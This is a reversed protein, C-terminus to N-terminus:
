KGALHYKKTNGLSKQIRILATAMGALYFFYWRYAVPLFFGAVIFGWLAAQLYGAVTALRASQADLHPMSRLRSLEKMLVVILAVYVFLAPLGLESAIQLPASHVGGRSMHGRVEQLALTNMGLGAGLLPNELVALMSDRMDNYRVTATGVPDKETAVITSMREFYTGPMFAILLPVTLMGIVAILAINRKPTQWLLVVGVVVLALFGGRSFSVVIGVAMLGAFAVYLIKRFRSVALKAVCLALPLATLLSLALDNPDHAIGGQPGGIRDGKLYIGNAYHWLGVIAFFVNCLVLLTFMTQIHRESVLVRSMLFYIILVKSFIDIFYAFSGGKWSSFPISCLALLALALVYKEPKTMRISQNRASLFFAAIALIASVMALRLPELFPFYSQPSIYLVFTFFLVFWLAPGGATRKGSPASNAHYSTTRM